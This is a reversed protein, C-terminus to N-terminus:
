RRAKDTIKFRAQGRPLRRTTAGLAHVVPRRRTPTAVVAAVEIQVAGIGALASARATKDQGCLRGIRELDAVDDGPWQLVRDARVAVVPQHDERWGPVAVGAEP